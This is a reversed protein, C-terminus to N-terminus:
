GISHPMSPRMNHVHFCSESLYLLKGLTVCLKVRFRYEKGEVKSLVWFAFQLPSVLETPASALLVHHQMDRTLDM